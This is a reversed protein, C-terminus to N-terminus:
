SLRDAVDFFLPKARESYVWVTFATGSGGKTRRGTPFPVIGCLHSPRDIPAAVDPRSSPYGDDVTRAHLFVPAKPCNCQQQGGRTCVPVVDKPQENPACNPEGIM